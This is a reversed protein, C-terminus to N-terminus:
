KLNRVAEAAATAAAAAATTESPSRYSYLRRQSARYDSLTPLQAVCGDEIQRAVISPAGEILYIKRIFDKRQSAQLPELTRVNISALANDLTLGAARKEAITQASAGMAICAANSRPNYSQKVVEGTTTSVRQQVESNCPRDQYVGECKYLNQASAASSLLVWLVASLMSKTSCHFM